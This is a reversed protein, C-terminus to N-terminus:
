VVAVRHLPACYRSLLGNDAPPTPSLSALYRVYDDTHFKTLDMFGPRVYDKQLPM